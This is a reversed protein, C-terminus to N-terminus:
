RNNLLKKVEGVLYLSGTVVILGDRPTIETAKEMAEAVSEIKVIRDVDIESPAFEVVEDVTMARSNSPRTLIVKEARPWLIEAIEGIAKERMAGFILTIPRQESEDLFQRLARAGGPNHAGDLLVNDVYELRGPHSAKELGEVIRVEEEGDKFELFLGHYLLAKAIQLATQANEAQHRGQLGLKIPEFRYLSLEVNVTGDDNPLTRWPAYEDNLPDIGLDRCHKRLMRMADRSQAGLVADQTESTIIAAKEAAIEEITDGLYEQHDLDIRTIAAIEAKAATVADYRGGLGTELIALEVEADAFALLAIATVQEFFTPRYALRGDSLLAESTVRVRTALRAFEEESLDVDNIKIRETISILHPSTYLGTRIDAQRCISDLFACVSGKGNTGAVQVKKYKTQPEGLAALVRTINELGLKMTEVENGLSLLYAEAEQFNM